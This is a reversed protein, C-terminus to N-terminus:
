RRGPRPAPRARAALVLGLPGAPVDDVPGAGAVDVGLRQRGHEAQGLQQPPPARQGLRGVSSPAARAAAEVWGVSRPRRLM